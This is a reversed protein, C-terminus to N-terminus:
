YITDHGSENLKKKNLFYFLTMIREDGYQTWYRKFKSHFTFWLIASAVLIIGSIRHSKETIVSAATIFFYIYYLTTFLFILALSRYLNYKALYFTGLSRIGEQNTIISSMKAVGDQSDPLHMSLKENILAVCKQRLPVDRENIFTPDFQFIDKLLKKSPSAFERLWRPPPKKKFLRTKLGVLQKKAWPDINKDFLAKLFEYKIRSFVKVSHGMLYASIVAIILATRPYAICYNKLFGSVIMLAALLASKDAVPETMKTMDVFLVPSLLIMLFIAGPLILGLIDFLFNELKSLFDNM